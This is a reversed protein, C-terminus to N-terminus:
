GGGVLTVIEIHDGEALQRQDHMRKPILARNIEVACPRAHLGRLVLLEGVSCRPKPLTISQGNLTVNMVRQDYSGSRYM